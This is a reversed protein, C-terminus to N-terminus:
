LASRWFIETQWDLPFGLVRLPMKEYRSLLERIKDRYNHAPQIRDLVYILASIAAYIKNPAAPAIWPHGYTNTPFILVQPFQRNYLRGHHACINRIDGIVHLWNELVRHDLAFKEAVAKKAPSPILNRYLKSLLTFTTVELSMWAPPLLENDYKRQYHKIFAENSRKIHKRLNELDSQHLQQNLQLTPNTFWNSGHAIAFHYILQTRFAIEIHSIMAFVLVRLQQDFEYHAIIKSFTLPHIFRHQPCKTQFPYTYARLRYYSVHSLFNAAAHHDDIILGREQLLAIQQDILLAPKAYKIKPM